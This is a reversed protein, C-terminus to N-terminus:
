AQLLGCIVEPSSSTFLENIDSNFRHQEYLYVTDLGGGLV